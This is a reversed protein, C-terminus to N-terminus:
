LQYAVSLEYITRRRPRQPIGYCRRKNGVTGPSIQFHAAITAIPLREELYMHRLTAEDIPSSAFRSPRLKIGCSRLYKAITTPSCGYQRALSTTSQGRMYRLCLEPCPLRIPRPM